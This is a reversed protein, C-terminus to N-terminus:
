AETNLRFMSGNVKVGMHTFAYLTGGCLSTSLCVSVVTGAVVVGFGVAQLWSHRTWPEGVKATKSRLQYFLFLDLIWVILTRVTEAAAVPM